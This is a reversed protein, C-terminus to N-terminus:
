SDAAGQDGVTLADALFRTLEWLLDRCAQYEAPRGGMPDPIDGSLSLALISSRSRGAGMRTAWGDISEGERRPAAREVLDALTFCRDWHAPAMAALQILHQRTMAVVVGSRQLFGPQVLRSRHAAVDIGIAEMVRVVEGPPAVGQSVFGASEVEIGDVMSGLMAAAM